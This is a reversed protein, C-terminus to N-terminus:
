LWRTDDFIFRKILKHKIVQKFANGNQLRFEFTSRFIDMFEEFINAGKLLVVVEEPSSDTSFRCFSCLEVVIDFVSVECFNEPEFM